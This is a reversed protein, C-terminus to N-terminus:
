QVFYSTFFLDEVAEDGTMKEMVKQVAKLAAKRLKEKGKPDKLEAGQQDGLLLLLEHRLAPAHLKIAELADSDRTMLQVDCRIYKAKGQVNVILSPSLKFYEIQKKEAEDEGALLGMPSTLLLVLLFLRSIKQYM